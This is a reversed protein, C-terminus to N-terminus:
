PSFSHGAFRLPPFRLQEWSVSINMKSFLLLLIIVDLAIDWQLGTIQSSSQDM